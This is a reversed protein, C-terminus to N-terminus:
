ELAEADAYADLEVKNAPVVKNWDFNNKNFAKESKVWMKKNGEIKYVKSGNEDKFLNVTDFSSVIESDVEVVDSYKNNYSSFVKANIIYKKMGSNTIYFIRDNGKEKILKIKPYKELEKDSAEGINDWKLGQANFASITPVWLRKGDVVRFVRNHGVARLLKATTELYDSYANVVESSTEKIDSWEYGNDRFEEATKIWQKQCNNIVFIRPDNPLKILTGDPLCNDNSDIISFSNDSLDESRILKDYEKDMASIKIKYEGSIINEPINWDVSQEINKDESTIWAMGHNPGGPYVIKVDTKNTISNLFKIKIVQGKEYTEGGNPSIVKVQDSQSNDDKEVIVEIDLSGSDACACCGGCTNGAAFKVFKDDSTCYTEQGKNSGRANCKVVESINWNGEPNLNLEGKAYGYGDYTCDAWAIGRILLKYKSDSIKKREVYWGKARKAQEEEFKDYYYANSWHDCCEGGVYEEYLDDSGSLKAYYTKETEGASSSFPYFSAQHAKDFKISVDWLQDDEVVTEGYIRLYFCKSAVVKIKSYKPIYLLDDSYGKYGPKVYEKMKVWSGTQDNYEYIIFSPSYCVCSSCSDGTIRMNIKKNPEVNYIKYKSCGGWLFWTAAGEGTASYKKGSSSVCHDVDTESPYIENCDRACSELTEGAECISNGCVTESISETITFSLSKENNEENSESVINVSKPDINIKITNQGKVFWTNDGYKSCFIEKTIIEGIEMNKGYFTNAAHINNVYTWATLDHLEIVKNGANKVVAYLCVIDGTSPNEPKVYADKIILDPKEVEINSCACTFQSNCGCHGDNGVESQEGTSFDSIYSCTAGACVKSGIGTVIGKNYGESECYSNCAEESARIDTWEYGSLTYTKHCASASPFLKISGDNNIGVSLNFFLAFLLIAPAILMKKKLNTKTKM